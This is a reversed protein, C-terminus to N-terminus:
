CGEVSMEPLKAAKVAEFPAMWREEDCPCVSLSLCLMWYM